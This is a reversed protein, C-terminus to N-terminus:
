YALINSACIFVWVQMLARLIKANEKLFATWLSDYQKSETEQCFRVSLFGFYQGFWTLNITCPDHLGGMVDYDLEDTEPFGLGTGPGHVPDLKFM